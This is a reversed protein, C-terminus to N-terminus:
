KKKHEEKGKKRWETRNMRREEYILPCQYLKLTFIADYTKKKNYKM